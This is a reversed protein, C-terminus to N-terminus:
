VDNKEFTRSGINEVNLFSSSKRDLWSIKHDDLSISARIKSSDSSVVNIPGGGLFQLLMVGFLM